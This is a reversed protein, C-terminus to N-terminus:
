RHGLAAFAALFEGRSVPARSVQVRNDHYVAGRGMDADREMVTAAISTGGPNLKPWHGKAGGAIGRPVRDTVADRARVEDDVVSRVSWAPPRELGAPPPSGPEAADM